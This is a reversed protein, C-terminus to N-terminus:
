AKRWLLTNLSQMTLSELMSWKKALIILRPPRTLRTGSSLLRPVNIKKLRATTPLHFILLDEWANQRYDYLSVM